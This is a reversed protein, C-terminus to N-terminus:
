GTTPRHMEIMNKKPRTVKETKEAGGKRLNDKKQTTRGAGKINKKGEKGPPQKWTKVSDKVRRKQKGLGRHLSTIATTSKKKKLWAENKHGVMTPPTRL